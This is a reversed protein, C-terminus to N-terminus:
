QRYTTPASGTVRKFAKSFAFSSTYGLRAAVQEITLNDDDSLWTTALQIRWRTLYKMPPEGVMSKFRESFVSRSMAVVQALKDLTWAQEPQGHIANLAKGLQPDYLAGLWGGGVSHQDIWSRLVMIFLIDMLRSVVAEYGPRRARAESEIGRLATALWYIPQGDHNRIIILPPLLSFIPTAINHESRFEGYILQAAGGGGESVRWGAQLGAPPKVLLQYRPTNSVVVLDGRELELAERSGDIQLWCGGKEVLHYAATNLVSLQVPWTTTLDHHRFPEPQLRIAHLVHNLADM